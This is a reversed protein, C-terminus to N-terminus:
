NKERIQQEVWTVIADSKILANKYVKEDLPLYNGPYRTKEAHDTLSVSPALRFPFKFPFFPIGYGTVSLAADKIDDPILINFEELSKILAALSHTKCYKGQKSIMLAKLSIEGAQQCHYCLLEYRINDNVEGHRALDLNDKARTMWDNAREPNEKIFKM